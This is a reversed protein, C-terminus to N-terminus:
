WRTKPSRHAAQVHFVYTSLPHFVAPGLAVLSMRYAAPASLPPRQETLQVGTSNPNCRCIQLADASRSDSQEGEAVMLTTFAM